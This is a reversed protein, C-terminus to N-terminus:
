EEGGMTAVIVRCRGYHFSVARSEEGYFVEVTEGSPIRRLFDVLIRAELEKSADGDCDCPISSKTQGKDAAASEVTIQGDHLRVHVGSSDESTTVSSLKVLSLLADAPITVQKDSGEGAVKECYAVDPYKGEILRCWVQSGGSEFSAMNDAITATVDGSIAGFVAPLVTVGPFEDVIGGQAIGLRRSDTAAIELVGDSRQIRVGSMAMSRGPADSVCCAVFKGAQEWLQAPIQVVAGTIESPLPYEDAPITTLKNEGLPTQVILRGDKGTLSIWDPSLKAVEGVCEPLLTPPLDGECPIIRKFSLEGNTGTLTLSGGSAVAHVYRYVEKPSRSSIAKAAGSFADGFLKANCKM